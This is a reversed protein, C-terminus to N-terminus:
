AGKIFKVHIKCVNNKEKFVNNLAIHANYSAYSSSVTFYQWKLFIYIFNCESLVMLSSFCSFLFVHFVIEILLTKISYTFM